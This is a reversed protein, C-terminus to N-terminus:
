HQQLNKFKISDGMDGDEAEEKQGQQSNMDVRANLFTQYSKFDM